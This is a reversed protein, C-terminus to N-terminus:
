DVIAINTVKGDVVTFFVTKGMGETGFVDVNAVSTDDAVIAETAPLRCILATNGGGMDLAESVGAVSRAGVGAPVASMADGLTGNTYPGGLENDAGGGGGPEYVPFESYATPIVSGAVYDCDEVGSGYSSSATGNRVMLEFSTAANLENFATLEEPTPVAGALFYIIKTM